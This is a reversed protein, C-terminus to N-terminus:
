GKETTSRPALAESATRLIPVSLFFYLLHTIIQQIALIYRDSLLLSFINTVLFGGVYSFFSCVNCLFFLLLQGM